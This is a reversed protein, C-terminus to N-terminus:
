NKTKEVKFFGPSLEALNYFNPGMIESAIQNSDVYCIDHHHEKSTIMQGYLANGERKKM